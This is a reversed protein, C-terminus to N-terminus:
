AIILKISNKEIIDLFAAPPLQDTIIVAIQTWSIGKYYSSLGFKKSDALMIVKASKGAVQNKIFADEENAYFFGNESIAAAGLFSTDFQINILYDMCNPKYFFRNEKDLCGGISHVSVLKNEALIEINDLSHTFVTVKKNIFEALFRITTSVDLFYHEREQIFQLAKQAINKKEESHADMRAKYAELTNKISPLSIGGHTRIATGAEILKIIDRRATDRSVGFRSCITHISMTQHENLYVLIQVLREEQYM